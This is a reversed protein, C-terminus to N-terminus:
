FDRFRAVPDPRTTSPELFHRRLADRNEALRGALRLREAIQRCAACLEREAGGGRGVGRSHLRNGQDFSAAVRYRICYGPRRSLLCRHRAGKPPLFRTARERSLWSERAASDRADRRSLAACLDRVPMPGGLIIARGRGQIRRERESTEGAYTGEAGQSPKHWERGMSRRRRDRTDGEWGM